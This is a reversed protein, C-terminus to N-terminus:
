WTIFVTTNTWSGNSLSFSLYQTFVSYEFNLEITNADSIIFGDAKEILAALSSDGLPNHERPYYTINAGLPSQISVRLFGDVGNKEWEWTPEGRTKDFDPDSNLKEVAFSSDSSSKLLSQYLGFDSAVDQAITPIAFSTLVMFLLSLRFAKM